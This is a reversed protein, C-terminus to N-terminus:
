AAIDEATLGCEKLSTVGAEHLKKRDGARVGGIM